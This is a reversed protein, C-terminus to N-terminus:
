GENKEGGSLILVGWITSIVVVPLLAIISNWDLLSYYFSVGALVFAVTALGIFLGGGLLRWFSM